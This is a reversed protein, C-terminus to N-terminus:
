LNNSMSCIGKNDRLRKSAEIKARNIQVPRHGAGSFLSFNGRDPNRFYRFQSRNTRFRHLGLGFCMRKGDLCISASISPKFPIAYWSPLSPGDLIGAPDIPAPVPPLSFDDFTGTNSRFNSECCVVHFHSGSDPCCPCLPSKQFTDATM